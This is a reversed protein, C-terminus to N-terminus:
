PAPPGGSGGGDGDGSSADGGDEAVAEEEESIREVSVVQEDEATAFIRVGKSIRSAIRIGAVPVRILQGANSVLMIQDSDEVPFCAVLSGIEGLKSIDTARIGKGGRGSVRFDYSSTRKGYGRENVTLVFQEAAGMAIYRESPLAVEGVAAEEEAEAVAADEASAAADEADVEEGTARRMGAAQKLYAAREPPTAEFHRLITLSIVRDGEALSIGRVGVSDRGKFVRLDGVPFRICQGLATTLMVDDAPTSIQVGVISDGEDLKMAIKGARNVNTFDSLKNRRVSGRRTAFIVDYDGWTAEDESLALISSIEEGAEIPLLNILAKGRAQPAALPLRWVKMKYAMGRSSFFLVPTHTSAVFLRTAFDEERMSMGSRGKGGRRQSRYTVLPVRKVYGAHSVTVVMDERQILDEDEIDPGGELIETRRPTAFEDKVAILEAKIIDMVRSRSRLIDLYDRIEAALKNLEEGIEDRGLATLRQLRLDLIARAQEESLRVNGNEDVQHRPDDILVVLPAVDKAPWEREM